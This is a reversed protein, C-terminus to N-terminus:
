LARLLAEGRKRNVRRLEDAVRGATEELQIPGDSARPLTKYGQARLDGLSRQLKQWLAKDAPLCGPHRKALSSLLTIYEGGHLEPERAIQLGENIEETHRGLAHLADLRLLAVWSFSPVTRSFECLFRASRESVLDTKGAEAAIGIRQACVSPLVLPDLKSLSSRVSDEVVQLESDWREFGGPEEPDFGSIVSDIVEDVLGKLKETSM